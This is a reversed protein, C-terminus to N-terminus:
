CTACSTPVIPSSATSESISVADDVTWAVVRLGLEHALAIVPQRVVPIRGLSRPLHVFQGPGLRRPQRRSEAAAVLAALARWGLASCIPARVRRRVDDLWGDWGGAVCIRRASGTRVIADALPAAVSGTKLDIAFCSDPFAALVDEIREIPSDTDLIRLGRLQAWSMTAVLRDVGTVRLLSADHFAVAVGDRTVRVDTELHDFGLRTAREFAVLTNEPGLAAGGRHAIAIPGVRGGYTLNRDRREPLLTAVGGSQAARRGTARIGPAINAINLEM